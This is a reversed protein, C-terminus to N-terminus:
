LIFTLLWEVIVAGLWGVCATLLLMELARAVSRTKVLASTAFILVGTGVIWPAIDVVPVMGVQSGSFAFLFTTVLWMVISIPVYFLFWYALLKLWDARPVIRDPTNTVGV